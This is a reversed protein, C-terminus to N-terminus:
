IEGEAERKRSQRKYLTCHIVLYFGSPVCPTSNLSVKRDKKMTIERNRHRDQGTGSWCGCCFIIVLLTAVAYVLNLLVCSLHQTHTRARTHNPNLVAPSALSAPLHLWDHNAVYLCHSMEQGFPHSYAENIQVCAFLQNLVPLGVTYLTSGEGQTHTALSVCQTQYQLAVSETTVSCETWNSSLSSGQGSYSHTHSFFHLYYHIFHINM